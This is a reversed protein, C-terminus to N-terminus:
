EVFATGNFQGVMIPGAAPVAESSLPMSCAGTLRVDHRNEHTGDDVAQNVWVQIGCVGDQVSWVSEDGDVNTNPDDTISLGNLTFSGLEDPNLTEYFSLEVTTRARTDYDTLSWRLTWGGGITSFGCGTAQLTTQM